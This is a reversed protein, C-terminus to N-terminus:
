MVISGAAMRAMAITQVASGAAAPTEAPARAAVTTPVAIAGAITPPIMILLTARGAAVRAATTTAIMVTQPQSWAARVLGPEGARASQAQAPDGSAMAM